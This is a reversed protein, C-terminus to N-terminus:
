DESKLWKEFAKGYHFTVEDGPHINRAAYLVPGDFETNPEASHNLFRLKNTGSIGYETGDPDTIWLVYKGNRKAHRGHYTGIKEGEAIFADAFVGSGHIRSTKVTLKHLQTM